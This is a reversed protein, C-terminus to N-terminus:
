APRRCNNGGRTKKCNSIFVEEQLEFSRSLCRLSYSSSAYMGLSGVYRMANRARIQIPLVSPKLKGIFRLSKQWGYPDPWRMVIKQGPAYPKERGEYDTSASWEIIMPENKRKGAVFIATDRLPDQDTYQAYADRANNLLSPFRDLIIQVAEDFSLGVRRPLAEIRRAPDFNDNGAEVLWDEHDALYCLLPESVETGGAIAVCCSSSLAISKLLGDGIVRTERTELNTTLRRQDSLVALDLGKRTKEYWLAIVTMGCCVVPSFRSHFVSFGMGGHYIEPVSMSYQCSLAM